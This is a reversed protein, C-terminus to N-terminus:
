SCKSARRDLLNYIEQAIRKLQDGVTDWYLGQRIIEAIEEVSPKRALKEKLEANEKELIKVQNNLREIEENGLRVDMELTEITNENNIVSSSLKHNSHRLQEIEAKLKTVVLRSQSLAENFGYNEMCEICDENFKKHAICSDKEKLLEEGADIYSQALNNLILVEGVTVGIVGNQKIGDVVQKLEEVSPINTM